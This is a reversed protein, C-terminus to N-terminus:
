QTILSGQLLAFVTTKSLFPVCRVSLSFNIDNQSHWEPRSFYEKSSKIRGDRIGNWEGGWGAEEEVKDGDDAAESKKLAHPYAGWQYEMPVCVIVVVIQLEPKLVLWLKGMSIFPCTLELSSSCLQNWDFCPNPQFLMKIWIFVIGNLLQSVAESILSTAKNM